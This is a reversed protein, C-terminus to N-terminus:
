RQRRGTSDWVRRGAVWVEAAAAAPLWDQVAAVIDAESAAGNTRLEIRVPGPGPPPDGERIIKGPDRVLVAQGTVLEVARRLGAKTGRDVLLAGFGFVLERQRETTLTPDIGRVGLWQGMWRVFAPPAVTADLAHDIGDIRERLGDALEQFILVFRRLFDDGAFCM